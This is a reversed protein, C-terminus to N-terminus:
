RGRMAISGLDGHARADCIRQAPAHVSRVSVYACTHADDSLRRPTANDTASLLSDAHPEGVTRVSVCVCVCM